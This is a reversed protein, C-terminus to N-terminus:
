QPIQAGTHRVRSSQLKQFRFLCRVLVASLYVITDCRPVVVETVHNWSGEIYSLLKQM